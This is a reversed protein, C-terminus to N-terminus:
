GVLVSRTNASDEKGYKASHHEAQTHSSVMHPHPFCCGFPNSSDEPSVCFLEQEWWGSFSFWASSKSPFRGSFHASDTCVSSVRDWRGFSLTVGLVILQKWTIHRDWVLTWPCKYSYFSLCGTILLTFNVIDPVCYFNDSLLSAFLFLFGLRLSFEISQFTCLVVFIISSFTLLILNVISWINLFM